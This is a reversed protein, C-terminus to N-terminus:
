QGRCGSNTNSKTGRATDLFSLDRIRVLAYIAFQVLYSVQTCFDLIWLRISSYM